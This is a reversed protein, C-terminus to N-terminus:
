NGTERLKDGKAEKISEPTKFKLSQSRAVITAIVQEKAALDAQLAEPLTFLKDALDTLDKEIGLKSLQGIKDRLQALFQDKTQTFGDIEGQVRELVTTAQNLDQVQEQTAKGAEALPSIETITQVAVQQLKRRKAIEQNLKQIDQFGELAALTEQQLGASAKRRSGIGTRREEFRIAAAQTKAEEKPVVKSVFTEPRLDVGFRDLISKITDLKQTIVRVYTNDEAVKLAQQRLVGVGEISRDVIRESLLEISGISEGLATQLGKSLGQGVQQGLPLGIGMFAGQMAGQLPATLLSGIGSFLNGQRAQNFGKSISSTIGKEFEKLFGTGQSQQVQTKVTLQQELQSKISTLQSSNVVLNVAVDVRYGSLRERYQNFEKELNQKDLNVALRVTQRKFKDRQRKWEADLGAGDLKAPIRVGAYRSGLNEIQRDLESTDLGLGVSLEGISTM